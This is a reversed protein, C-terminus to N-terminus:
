GSYNECNPNECHKWTIGFGFGVVKIAFSWHMLWERDKSTRLYSLIMTDLHIGINVNNWIIYPYYLEITLFGIFFRFKGKQKMVKKADYAM